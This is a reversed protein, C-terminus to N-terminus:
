GQGSVRYRNSCSKVYNMVVVDWHISNRLSSIILKLSRIMPHIIRQRLFVQLHSWFYGWLCSILVIASMSEIVLVDSYTDSGYINSVLCTYVGSSIASARDIVLSSYDEHTEIAVGVSESAIPKLQQGDKLWRFVVPPSGELLRCFIRVSQGGVINRDFAFPKLKPANGAISQCKLSTLQSWLM